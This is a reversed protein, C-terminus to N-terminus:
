HDVEVSPLGDSSSGGSGDATDTTGDVRTVLLDTRDGM